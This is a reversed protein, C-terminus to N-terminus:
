AILGSQDPGKQQSHSIELIFSIQKAEDKQKKIFAVVISELNQVNLNGSDKVITNIRCDAFKKNHNKKISSTTSTCQKLSNLTATDENNRM